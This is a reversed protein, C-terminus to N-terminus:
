LADETGSGTGKGDAGAALTAGVLFRGRTSAQMLVGRAPGAVGTVSAEREVGDAEANAGEMASEDLVAPTMSEAGDVAEVEAGAGTGARRWCRERALELAAFVGLVRLGGGGLGSLGTNWARRGVMRGACALLVTPM